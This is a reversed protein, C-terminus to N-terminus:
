NRMGAGKEIHIHCILYLVIAFASLIVYSYVLSVDSIGLFGYRFGNIIYFIPNLLTVKQWFPPLFSISYFIGGLYTLPTIIFTPIISVDDFKRAFIGNLLGMLAFVTSTLIVISIIAVLNYIQLKTFFLAVCTVLIGICFSRFMGGLVYGFIICPTKTPSVLVEEIHRQFKSSFFSGSVNQYANTLVSMMILGPVIFDIYSYGSIASIRTGLLNGFVIFYLTTTVIPPVLTQPWIRLIRIIEKKAIQQLAIFQKM